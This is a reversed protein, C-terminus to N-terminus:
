SANTPLAETRLWLRSPVEFKGLHASAHGKLAEISVEQLDRVVVSAGVEEGLEEPPLQVVAAELVGGHQLLWREVHACAINEGGRIVIDKSRGVVYLYGEDDIRGLDGTKLWGEADVIAADDAWYGSAATPTRAQIEGVGNVDPDIIRLEVIPMPRGVCGPRGELDAASGAALVGGAETLGYLSGVRRATNPFAKQVRHRLEPSIAAGGMPISRLSSVDYRDFAPDDIVRSVMTPV